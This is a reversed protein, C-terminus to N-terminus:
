PTAAFWVGGVGQGNADGPNHDMSYHYLAMGSYALQQMGDSRSFISLTGMAMPDLSPTASMAQMPPWTTACGGTCASGGAPDSTRVYLTMGSSDTLIAENLTANQMVNVDASMQARVPRTGPAGFSLLCLALAAAPLFWIRHSLISRLTNAM